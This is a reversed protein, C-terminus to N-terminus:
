RRSRMERKKKEIEERTAYRWDKEMTPAGVGGVDSLTKQSNLNKNIKEAVEQTVKQHIKQEMSPHTLGYAYTAEAPNATNWLVTEMGQIKSAMELGLSFVEKFDPHAKEAERAQMQAVMQKNEQRVAGLKQDVFADMDKFMPIEEPDYGPNKAQQQAQELIEAKRRYIEADRLAQQRMRREEELAALPVQQVEPAKAAEPVQGETQKEQKVVPPTAQVGTLNEQAL